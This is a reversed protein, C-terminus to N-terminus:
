DHANRLFEPELEKVHRITQMIIVDQVEDYSYLTVYGYKGWKITLQRLNPLADNPVTKGIKPLTSLVEIKDLMVQMAKAVKHPASEQM